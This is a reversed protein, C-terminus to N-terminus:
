NAYVPLNELQEQTANVHFRADGGDAEVVLRLMDGSLAVKKEGIGLFGGVDVVAGSIKGADDLAVASIEGVDEGNNGYVRKGILDADTMVAFDVMTGDAAVMPVDAAPAAVPDATVTTAAADSAEFVMDPNYAPAGELQVKNGQFVIFYDQPSDADPVLALRDMDIAVTKEGIGLFGGFDVLVVETDGTLSIMVDSIEGADVWDVNADAVADVAMTATDAETLYVRKGIFQSARVGKEVGERYPSVAADQALASSAFAVVLATTTMLTKM